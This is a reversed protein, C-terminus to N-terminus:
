YCNVARHLGPSASCKTLPYSICDPLYVNNAAEHPFCVRVAVGVFGRLSISALARAHPMFLYATSGDEPIPPIYVQLHAANRTNQNGDKTVPRSELSSMASPETGYSVWLASSRYSTPWLASIIRPALAEIPVPMRGEINVNGSRECASKDRVTRLPIKGIELVAM